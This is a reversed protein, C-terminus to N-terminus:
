KQKEKMIDKLKNFFECGSEVNVLTGDNKSKENSCIGYDWFYFGGTIGRFYFCDKCQNETEIVSILNEWREQCKESHESLISELETLEGFIKDSSSKIWGDLTLEFVVKNKDDFISLVTGNVSECLYDIRIGTEFVIRFDMPTIQLIDRIRDLQISEFIENCYKIEDGYGCLIKEEIVVRWVCSDSVIDWEGYFKGKLKPNKYFIKEGLGLRLQSGYGVRLSCLKQGILIEQVEDFINAM